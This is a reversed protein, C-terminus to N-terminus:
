RVLAYPSAASSKSQQVVGSTGQLGRNRKQVKM